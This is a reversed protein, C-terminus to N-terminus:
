RKMGGYVTRAVQAGIKEANSQQAAEFGGADIHPVEGRRSLSPPVGEAAFLRALEREVARAVARRDASSYGELVIEEIELELNM